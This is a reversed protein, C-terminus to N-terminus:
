CPKGPRCPIAGTFRTLRTVYTGPKPKILDKKNIQTRIDGGTVTFFAGEMFLDEESHWVWNKWESEAAGLQKTIQKAALNPPAIYRNGQSIITPNKSGGIAYMLWHTYDNNVVHFFGWRCRPMRQVLGRGFHNFAVTIQMIQDESFSDSSGFLMVDNHNTLHCNSITVGTSKAIVDILGDQCNSLSLHDLWVNTSGFITVGDGDSQTRFGFHEPSDRVMGGKGVVIDHIHINHIIVNNSNQVTLQAGNIIRVQAGRGDITKNSGIMLEEKLKIIMNKAFIIWLPEDQIVGWRLTGPTPNVVDNDTGDTVIYIKGALGGTANRGFGQACRALRKRDTAWDNRCRWCRDIPNTAKCPGAFKKKKGLMERRAGEEEEISSHVARNFSDTVEFPDHQYTAEAAADSMLKRRQWHEDLDGAMNAESAIAVASLFLVAYLVFCSVGPMRWWQFGEM